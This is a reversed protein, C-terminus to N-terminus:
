AGGWFQRYKGRRLTLVNRVYGRNISFWSQGGYAKQPARSKLSHTEINGFWRSPDCGASNACVRRDQLLSGLGGNYSALTFAWQAGVDAAPPVRRWLGHTMEVVATLQYGPDYRDQWRWANLSAYQAKLEAFKNFRETGDANYAVTIQGFGFGYERSTKLEARPNWCRPSKLSVCSEQEVLGGLTWPEPSEPWTGRQREVLLPAYTVAGVPVALLAVIIKPRENAPPSRPVIAPEALPARPRPLPVRALKRVPAPALRSVPAIAPAPKIVPRPPSECGGLLLALCLAFRGATLGQGM